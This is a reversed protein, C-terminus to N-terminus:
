TSTCGSIRGRVRRGAWGIVAARHPWSVWLVAGPTLTERLAPLRDALEERRTVFLPVLSTTRGPRQEIVVGPPLPAVLALYDDPAAM